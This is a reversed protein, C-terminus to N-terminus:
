PTLPAQRTVFAPHGAEALARRANAGLWDFAEFDPRARRPSAVSRVLLLGENASAGRRVADAAATQIAHLYATDEEGIRRARRRDLVPGHGPVVTEIQREDLVRLLRGVAAVADGISGLVIPHCVASLYDGPLLLGRDAVVFASGDTSHGPCDIAVVEADGLRTPEASAVVDVRLQGEWETGWERGSEDLKHRAEGSEIARATGAGAVVTAGDFAPLGCVHDFDSHTVLVYVLGAGRARDRIAAIEDPFISPDCVLRARGTLLVVSNTAWLRSQYVVLRDDLRTIKLPAM